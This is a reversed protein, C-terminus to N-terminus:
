WYGVIRLDTNQMCFNTGSVLMKKQSPHINLQVHIVKTTALICFKTPQSTHETACILNQLQVHEKTYDFHENVVMAM